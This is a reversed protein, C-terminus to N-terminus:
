LWGTILSASDASSHMDTPPVMEWRFCYDMAIMNDLFSESVLFEVFMDLYSRNRPLVPRPLPPGPVSPVLGGPGSM